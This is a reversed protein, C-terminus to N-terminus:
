RAVPSTLGRFGRFGQFGSVGSVRVKHDRRKRRQNPIVNKRKMGERVKENEERKVLAALLHHGRQVLLV